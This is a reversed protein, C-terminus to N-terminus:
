SYTFRDGTVTALIDGNETLLYNNPDDVANIVKCVGSSEAIPVIGRSNRPLTRVCFTQAAVLGSHTFRELSAANIIYIRGTASFHDIASTGLRARIMNRPRFSFHRAEWTVEHDVIQQGKTKPWDPQTTGSLGTNVKAVCKYRLGKPSAVTPRVFDGINYATTAQWVPESVVDVGEIYFFEFTGTVNEIVAVLRGSQWGQVDGALDILDFADGNDDEFAPGSAVLDAPTPTLGEQLVGGTAAVDQEGLRAYNVDDTAVWVEAGSIQQHGRVRFVAFEIQGSESYAEEIEFFTVAIDPVPSLANSGIGPLTFVDNTDPVAYSDLSCSFEVIPSELSPKKDLIILQGFGDLIFSQGPEMLRAGRLARVTIDSLLTRAQELRRAVKSAVPVSTVTTIEVRDATALGIQSAEGDDDFPVDQDRYTHGEESKVTFVPRTVPAESHDMETEADPEAVEETTLTPLAAVSYRKAVFALRDAVQPMAVGMDQLIAQIPREVEPGDLIAMNVPLHEFEFQEGIGELSTADVNAAAIKSGRFSGGTLLEFLVHAANVGAGTIDSMTYTSDSLTTGPCAFEMVYEVQPMNPSSGYEMPLWLVSCLLPWRSSIDLRSKDGLLTNIPQDKEGWWIYFTGKDTTVASGSPTNISDIPGEWITEGNFRIALLRTAPGVGLQHWVEEYWITQGDGGGGLGKGGGGVKRSTRNGAWGVLVRETKRTGYYVPIWEGRTSRITPEDEGLGTDGKPPKRLLSAAYLLGGVLLSPVVFGM